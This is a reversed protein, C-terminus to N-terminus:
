AAPSPSPPNELGESSKPESKFFTLENGACSAEQTKEDSLNEENKGRSRNIRKNRSPSILDHGRSIGGRDARIELNRRRARM